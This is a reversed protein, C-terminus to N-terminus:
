LIQLRSSMIVDYHRLVSGELNAKNAEVMRLSSLSRCPASLQSHVEGIVPFPPCCGKQIRLLGLRPLGKYNLVAPLLRGRSIPGKFERATSLHSISLAGLFRISIRPPPKAPRVTAM